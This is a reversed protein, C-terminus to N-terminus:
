AAAENTGTEVEPQGKGQTDSGKTDAGAEFVAFGEAVLRDTIWSKILLSMNTGHFTAAKEIANRLGEEARFAIINSNNSAGM